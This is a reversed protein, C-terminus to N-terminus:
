ICPKSLALGTHLFCPPVNPTLLLRVRRFNSTRVKYHTACFALRCKSVAKFFINLFLLILCLWIVGGPQVLFIFYFLNSVLTDLHWAFLIPEQDNTLYAQILSSRSARL